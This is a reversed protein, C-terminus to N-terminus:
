EHHYPEHHIITFARYLQEAFLPRIIQHSFTMKSLSMKENARRYVDESFGYAGGVAFCLNKLSQNFLSELHEAFRTSTFEKGKDDLLILYDTPTLRKLLGDGEVQKVKSIDKSKLNVAELFIEEMKMYRNIRKRYEDCLNKIDPSTTKGNLFLTIKM